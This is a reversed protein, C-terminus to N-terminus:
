LASIILRYIYIYTIFQLLLQMAGHFKMSFLKLTNLTPMSIKLQIQLFIHFYWINKFLNDSFEIDHISQLEIFLPTYKQFNLGGSNAPNLKGWVSILGLCLLPTIQACFLHWKKSWCEQFGRYLCKTWGREVLKKM